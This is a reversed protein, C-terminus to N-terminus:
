KASDVIVKCIQMLVAAQSALWQRDKMKITRLQKQLETIKPKYITPEYLIEGRTLPRHLLKGIAKLVVDLMDPMIIELAEDVPEDKKGGIGFAIGEKETWVKGSKLDSEIEKVKARAVNMPKDKIEEVLWEQVDPHNRLEKHALLEAKKTSLEVSQARELVQDPLQTVLRMLTYQRDASVPIEKFVDVFKPTLDANRNTRNGRIKKEEETEEITIRHASLGSMSGHRVEENKIRHLKQIAIDRRIGVDEYMAALCKASEIGELKLRIMNEIFAIRRAHIDDLESILAPVTELRAARAARVRRNGAIVEYKNNSIRRVIVPEIIGNNKISQIMEELEESEPMEKSFRAFSTLDIDRVAIQKIVQEIESKM